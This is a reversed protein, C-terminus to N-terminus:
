FSVCSVIIVYFLIECIRWLLMLYKRQTICGEAIHFNRSSYRKLAVISRSVISLRRTFACIFDVLKPRILHFSTEICLFSVHKCHSISFYVPLSLFFINHTIPSRAELIKRQAFLPVCHKAVCTIGM